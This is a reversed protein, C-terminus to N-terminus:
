DKALIMVDPRNIYSSLEKHRDSQIIYHNKHNFLINICTYSSSSEDTIENILLTAKYKEKLSWIDM